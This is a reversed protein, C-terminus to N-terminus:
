EEKILPSSNKKIIEKMKYYADLAKFKYYNKEDFWACDIQKLHIGTRTSLAIAYLLLQDVVHKEKSAEPKYDLIRIRGNYIQLFDIHGLLGGKTKIITGTEESTLYVPVEVAVTAMDTALFFKQLISHRHHNTKAAKLAIYAVNNEYAPLRYPRPINNNGISFSSGRLLFQKHDIKKENNLIGFLFQKVKEFQSPINDIKYSHIQLLYNQQHRLLKKM